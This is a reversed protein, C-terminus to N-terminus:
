NNVNVIELLKVRFKQLAEYVLNDNPDNKNYLLINAIIKEYDKPIEYKKIRSNGGESKKIYGYNWTTIETEGVEFLTTMDSQYFVISKENNYLWTIFKLPTKKDDFLEKKLNSISKLIDDPVFKNKEYESKIKLYIDGNNIKDYDYDPEEFFNERASRLREVQIDCEISEIRTYFKLPFNIGQCKRKYIKFPSKDFMITYYSKTMGYGNFHNKEETIIEYELVNTENMPIIVDDYLSVQEKFNLILKNDVIEYNGNYMEDMKQGGGNLLEFTKTTKTLRIEHGYDYYHPNAEIVLKDGIFLDDM